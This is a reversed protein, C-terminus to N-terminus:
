ELLRAYEAEAVGYAGGALAILGKRRVIRIVGREATILGKGELKNLADTVGPRRAGLMVAIFEHTLFLEDDDQRDHAMLLWRALRADIKATGNAFATQAIQVMFVYAYRQLRERLTKSAELAQTLHKTSIRNATGALQVYVDSPSRHDGLLVATGSMGERGILGVEIQQQAATAVVSIIGSEPFYVHTIPTNPKEISRRLELEVPELSPALLRRDAKSLGLLLQNRYNAVSM